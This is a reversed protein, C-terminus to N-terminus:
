VFILPRGAWGFAPAAAEYIARVETLLAEHLLLAGADVEADTCWPYGEGNGHFGHVADTGCESIIVPSGSTDSVVLPNVVGDMLVPQRRCPQTTTPSPPPPSVSGVTRDLKHSAVQRYAYDRGPWTADGDKDGTGATYVWVAPAGVHPYSRALPIPTIAVTSPDVCFACARDVKAVFLDYGPPNGTARVGYHTLKGIIRTAALTRTDDGAALYFEKGENLDASESNSVASGCECCPTWSGSDQGFGLVHAEGAVM